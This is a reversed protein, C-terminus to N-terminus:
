LGLGYERSQIYMIIIHTDYSAISQVYVSSWYDLLQAIAKTYSSLAKHQNALVINKCNHM